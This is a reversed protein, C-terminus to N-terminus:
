PAPLPGPAPLNRPTPQGQITVSALQPFKVKLNVMAQNWYEKQDDSVHGIITLIVVQHEGPDQTKIYGGSM